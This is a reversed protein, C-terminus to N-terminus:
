KFKFDLDLNLGFPKYTIAFILLLKSAVFILSL